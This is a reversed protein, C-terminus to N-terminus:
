RQGNRSVAAAEVLAQVLEGVRQDFDSTIPIPEGGVITARVATLTDRLAQLGRRGRESVKSCLRTGSKIAHREDM